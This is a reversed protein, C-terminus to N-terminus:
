ADERAASEANRGARGARDARRARRTSRRAVRRARLSALSWRSRWWQRAPVATRMAEVALEVQAWYAEAQEPTPEGPGFVIADAGAALGAVPGGVVAARRTAADDPAAAPRRPNTQAFAGALHVATERRTAKPPAPRRLDRAQDLLEEWGGVVREVPRGATRRRKRRRTKAAAILVFPTMLVLFPIGVTAAVTLLARLTPDPQEQPPPDETRPQETDDEPAQVPDEPPPPPQRVQPQPESQEQPTDERPTKTEDPTPHFAVWGYGTFNIEVWAQVDDGTITIEEAGAQEEDPVFGLVVRAPLGMERAMLAMASAYQEGDGVMLDGTLLVTIRDAGHGSLSPYDGSETLGHSFWGRETLGAELTQAILVPSTATGALEGAFLPVAEPVGAPEPLRVPGASAAGITEVDHEQPVVVDVTWSTGDPVGDALVATGTADNYRLDGSLELADGGEFDFREAYGVTPLWVMPLHHVEFGVETRDGRVSTTITEGVRRFQGSGEASEAGAVNWVVGDFADMTALRVTGGEPLGRVTLLDTDKWDKVFKRFSSLPSAHDRPDFPPVLEDRLVYRPRQEAALPGVLAGSVAVVAGMVLLSVLRRPALTGRRWAVWVLLAAVVLIGAIVPQVSEKTGLLVSVGLVVVPALAAWAGARRPEARRAVTVAIVTGAYALLYPAVLLNGSGGLAPDLTLVQKWVTVAGTLLLALSTPTPVVGALATTPAALAAGAVLYLVVAAASTVMAPWRRRAALLALGSGLVVGGVAPPLAARAGFVPLLPLLALLVTSALM